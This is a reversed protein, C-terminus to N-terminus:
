AAGRGFLSFQSAIRSEFAKAKEMGWESLPLFCQPEFGKKNFTYVRGHNLLYLRSTWLSEKCFPVMVWRFEYRELLELNLSVANLKEFLHKETRKVSIFTGEGAKDLKGIFRTQFDLQLGVTFIHPSKTPFLSIKQTDQLHMFSTGKGPAAM